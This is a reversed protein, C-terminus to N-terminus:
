EGEIRKIREEIYWIAKKLDEVPNEKDMHRWIYKIANGSCFDMGAVADICEVGPVNNYHGPHNISEKEVDLSLLELLKDVQEKTDFATYDATAYAYVADDKYAAAYAAHTAHTAYVINAADAASLWEKVTVAGGNLVRKYLNIVTKNAGVDSVGGEELMWVAFEPWKKSLDVGSNKANEYASRLGFDDGELRECLGDVLCELQEIM